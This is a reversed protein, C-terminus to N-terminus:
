HLPVTWEEIDEQEGILALGNAISLLEDGSEIRDAANRRPRALISFRPERTLPSVKCLSGPHGIRSARRRSLANM